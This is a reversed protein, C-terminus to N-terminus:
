EEGARITHDDIDDLYSQILQELEVKKIQTFPEVNTITEAFIGNDDYRALISQATAAMVKNEALYRNRTRTAFQLESELEQNKEELKAISAEHERITKRAERLKETIGAHSEKWKDIAEDRAVIRAELAKIKAETKKEITAIEAAQAELKKAMGEAKMEAQRKLGEVTLKARQIAATQSKQETYKKQLLDARHSMRSLDKSVAEHAKTMESLRYGLYGSLGILSVLLLSIIIKKGL